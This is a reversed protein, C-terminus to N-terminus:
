ARRTILLRTGVKMPSPGLDGVLDAREQALVVGSSQQGEVALLATQGPSVGADDESQRGSRGLGRFEGEGLQPSGEFATAAEAAAVRFGLPQQVDKAGLEGVLEGSDLVGETVLEQGQELLHVGGALGRAIERLRGGGGKVLV